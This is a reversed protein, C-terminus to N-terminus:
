GKSKIFNKVKQIKIEDLLKLAEVRIEGGEKVLTALEAQLKKILDRATQLKQVRAKLEAKDALTLAM